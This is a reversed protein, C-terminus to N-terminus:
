LILININMEGTAGDPAIAYITYGVGTNISVIGCTVNQAAYVLDNVQVVIKSTAEILADTITKEIYQNEGQITLFDITTQTIRSVASDGKDGKDGKAGTDGKLGQEGQIGQSGNDGKDGKLGQAGQIGQLGQLGREGQDGKDGKLGQNGTDGKDGKIGQSGADGKEGTLGIDGKLGQTGQLGQIGNDGKDGKDGKLGQEGQAGQEGKDGKLDSVLVLNNWAVDGIYRWKIHITDNTLEIQKGAIGRATESINIVFLGNTEAVVVSLRGTETVQTM